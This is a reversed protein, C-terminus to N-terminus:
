FLMLREPAEPTGATGTSASDDDSGFDDGSLNPAGGLINSTPDLTMAMSQAMAQARM